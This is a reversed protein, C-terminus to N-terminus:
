HNRRMKEFALQIRGALEADHPASRASANSILDAFAVRRQVAGDSATIEILYNLPLSSGRRLEDAMLERAAQSAEEIAAELSPFEAGEEDRIVGGGGVIHFHCRMLLRGIARGAYQTCCRVLRRGRPFCDVDSPAFGSSALYRAVERSNDPLARRAPG